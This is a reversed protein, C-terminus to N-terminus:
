WSDLMTKRRMPDLRAIREDEYYSDGVVHTTSVEEFIAGQAATFSHWAGREILLIDGEKMRVINGNLDVEMEGWLLHFTEEKLQHRHNPHRQGPLVVILKKCYERNVVNVILAGYRRFHEMGYHHSLEIQIAPGLTIRAEYLMGKADHVIGRITNLLDPQRREQIPDNKQYDRSAGYTARYHGFEGSTTQGPQCPMAFFVDRRGLPTGKKISRAAYVGRMLSRLSDIENQDVHREGDTGGIARAQQASVVWAEAQEPSMSYRNLPITETPIGMHRELLSAGKSVAVKVVDLDEPVEHGSYGVPVYPYRHIMREMFGLQVKEPPTPYVAVCHMLAFPAAKHMLFSVVNDIDYISLGGTSVVVPKRTETVAGLLPWDGASCSAVKIVQVGLDVCQGVSAEDFPTAIPVMGEERVADVLTTFEGRSLRTSLFRPIHPVDGRERFSPHIFTELERFQFKVGAHIRRERAIRGAARIIRVGHSVNGQHNNAMEFIFLNKFLTNDSMVPM